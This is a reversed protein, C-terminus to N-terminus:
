EEEAVLYALANDPLTLHIGRGKLSDHAQKVVKPSLKGSELLLKMKFGRIAQTLTRHPDVIDLLITQERTEYKKIQSIRDM